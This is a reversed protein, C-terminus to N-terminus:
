LCQVYVIVTNLTIVTVQSKKGAYKCKRGDTAIVPFDGAM